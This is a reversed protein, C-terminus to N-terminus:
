EGHLFHPNFHEVPDSPPTCPADSGERLTHTSIPTGDTETVGCNDSGMRPTHTSIVLAVHQEDHVVSM